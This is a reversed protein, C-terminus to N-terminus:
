ITINVKSRYNEYENYPEFGLIYQFAKDYSHFWYWGPRNILDV